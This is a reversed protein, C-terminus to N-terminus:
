RSRSTNNEPSYLSCTSNSRLDQRRLLPVIRRLTKPTYAMIIYPRAIKLYLVRTCVVFIYRYPHPWLYTPGINNLYSYKTTIRNEIIGGSEIFVASWVVHCILFSQPYFIRACGKGCVRRAGFKRIHHRVIMLLFSHTHTSLRFAKSPWVSLRLPPPPKTGWMFFRLGNIWVCSSSSEQTFSCVVQRSVSCIFNAIM